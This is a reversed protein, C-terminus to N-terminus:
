LNYYYKEMETVADKSHNKELKDLFERLKTDHGKLYNIGTVASITQYWKGFKIIPKFIDNLLEGALANAIGDFALTVSRVAPSLQKSLSYDLRIIHKGFTYVLGIISTIIFIPVGIIFFGIEKLLKKM